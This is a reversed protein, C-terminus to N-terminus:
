VTEITVVTAATVTQAIASVEAQAQQNVVNMREQIAWQKFSQEVYNQINQVAAEGRDRNNAIMPPVTPDTGDYAPNPITEPWYQTLSKTIGDWADAPFEFVVKKTTATMM